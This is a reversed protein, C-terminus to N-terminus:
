FRTIAFYFPLWDRSLARKEVANLYIYIYINPKGYIRKHYDLKQRISDIIQNSPNTFLLHISSLHSPLLTSSLLTSLRAM